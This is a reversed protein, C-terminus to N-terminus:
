NEPNQQKGRDSVYANGDKDCTMCEPNILRGEIPGFLRWVINASLMKMAIIEDYTDKVVTELTCLLMDHCEVYCIRVCRKGHVEHVQRIYRLKTERQETDWELKFLKSSRDAFLVSGDPGDCMRAFTATCVPCSEGTKINYSRIAECDQCSELVYDSHRSHKNIRVQDHFCQSSIENILDGTQRDLVRIWYKTGVKVRVLLLDNETVDMAGWVPFTM